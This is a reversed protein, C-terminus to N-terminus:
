ELKNIIEMSLLRGCSSCCGHDDLDARCICALGQSSTQTTIARVGCDTLTGIIFGYCCDALSPLRLQLLQLVTFQDNINEVPGRFRVDGRLLFQSYHFNFISGLKFRSNPTRRNM